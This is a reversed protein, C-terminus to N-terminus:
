KETESDKFYRSILGNVREVVISHPKIEKNTKQGTHAGYVKMETNLELKSLYETLASTVIERVPKDQDKLRKYLDNDLRVTLVKSM